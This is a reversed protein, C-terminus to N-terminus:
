DKKLGAKSRAVNNVYFDILCPALVKMSVNHSQDKLIRVQSEPILHSLAEVADKLNRSSKEGAILLAPINVSAAIREPVSFNGMLTVEYPLTHAVSKNKEWLSRGFYRFLFVAIAPMGMVDTMFYNVALSRKGQRVFETLRRVTDSPPAKNNHHDIIYPPEFLAIGSAKIGKDMALLLLAAGSSFGCIFPAEGAKEIITKLDEIENDVSYPETDTSEGRGRRDYSYVTFSGCLLPVLKPSVGYDRSCFAGDVLVIAPGNGKKDFAITTGDKSIVTEM